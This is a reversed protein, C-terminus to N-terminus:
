KKPPFEALIEHVAEQIREERETPTRDPDVVDSATGRWIMRKDKPNIVDVIITGEDYSSVDHHGWDYGPEAVLRQSQVAYYQVWFDASKSDVPPYGKLRLELDISRQIRELALGSVGMRDNPGDAQPPLPSFSWTRLNDFNHKPDYDHSVEPGSCGGILLGLILWTNRSM